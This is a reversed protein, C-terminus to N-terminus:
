LRAARHCRAFPCRPLTLSRGHCVCLVATRYSGAPFCRICAARACLRGLPPTFGSREIWRALPRRWNLPMVSHPRAPLLRRVYLHAYRKHFTPRLASHSPLIVSRLVTYALEAWCGPFVVNAAMGRRGLSIGELTTSLLKLPLPRKSFPAFPRPLSPRLPICLVCAVDNGAATPPPPCLACSRSSISWITDHETPPSREMGAPVWASQFSQSKVRTWALTAAPSGSVPYCTFGSPGEFFEEVCRGAGDSREARWRSGGGNDARDHLIFDGAGPAAPWKPVREALDRCPIAWSTRTPLIHPM